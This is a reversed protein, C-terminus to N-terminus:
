VEHIEFKIEELCNNRLITLSLGDDGSGLRHHLCKTKPQRSLHCCDAGGTILIQAHREHAADCLWPSLYLGLLEILVSRKNRLEQGTIHKSM